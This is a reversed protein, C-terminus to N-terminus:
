FLFFTVIGMFLIAMRDEVKRRRANSMSGTPRLSFAEGATSSSPSGNEEKKENSPRIGNKIFTTSEWLAVPYPADFLQILIASLVGAITFLPLKLDHVLFAPLTMESPVM